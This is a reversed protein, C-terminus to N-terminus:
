IFEIKSISMSNATSVNYSSVALRINKYGSVSSIDVYADFDGAGLVVYAPNSSTSIDRLGVLQRSEDGSDQPTYAYNGVVHMKTYKTVDISNNSDCYATITYGPKTKTTLRIVDSISLTHFSGGGSDTSKFEGIVDTNIYGNDFIVLSYTIDVREVQGAATITVDVSKEKSGDTTKATVTWEGVTVNFLAKGSTDRAKLTTTGDSCTCVSGEPYTVAIVSFLKVGGSMVYIM